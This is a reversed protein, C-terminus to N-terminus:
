LGGSQKFDAPDLSQRDPRDPRTIKGSAAESKSANGEEQKLAPMRFCGKWSELGLEHKRRMAVQLAEDGSWRRGVQSREEFVARGKELPNHRTPCGGSVVGNRPVM